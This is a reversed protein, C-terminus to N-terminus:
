GAWAPPTTATPSPPPAAEASATPAPSPSPNSAPSTPQTPRQSRPQPALQRSRPATRQASAVARSLSQPTPSQPSPQSGLPQAARVGAAPATGAPTPTAAPDATGAPPVRTIAISDQEPDPPPIPAESSAGTPMFLLLGHLGLSALLMPAFLTQWLPRARDTPAFRPIM